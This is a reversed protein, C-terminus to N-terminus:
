RLGSRSGCAPTPRSSRAASRKRFSTPSEGIEKMLYHPHDGRDIDRTTIQAVAVDNAAVALDTGDYAKRLMGEVTGALDGDLEIIQGRSANPNENGPTEGDMRVYHATEEVVGYPESAVIYADEALGIYLAQGSGRLGASAQGTRGGHM